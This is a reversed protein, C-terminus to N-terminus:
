RAARFTRERRYKLAFSLADVAFTEGGAGLQGARGAGRRRTQADARLGRGHQRHDARRRGPHDDQGGGSGQGRVRFAGAVTKRRQLPSMGKLPPTRRTRELALPDAEIGLRRSLERAVLASQNFGAAGCGGATCRSRCWCGTASWRRGAAGHLAGDDPRDRGQPWIQAPHALGRSLDDYAVAARTRAIRPPRALCRRLDDARDGAVAPRVDRLRFRRSIRHAKWCDPCFSHVEGVIM